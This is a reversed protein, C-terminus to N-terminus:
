KGPPSKAVTEGLLHVSLQVFDAETIIGLIDNGDIVPLCGIKQDLMIEGARRLGTDPTTVILNKSMVAAVPTLSDLEDREAEDVDALASISAAVIDRLSLLGVLEGNNGTIPLHRVRHEKMFQRAVDLTTQQDLTHPTTTM